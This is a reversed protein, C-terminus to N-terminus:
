KIQLPGAEGLLGHARFYAKKTELAGAGRIARYAQALHLQLDIEKRDREPSAPMLKAIEVGKTLHRSAEIYAPRDLGPKGAELWYGIAAQLQDAETLHHALVEPETAAVDPWREKLVHAIRAHLQQRRGRLMSAYAADQVLAHKFQYTADPPAGWRFLLAAEALQALASRLHVEPLAAAEAIMAYSFDRGIAAAIQAVDKVSALRDLRALLSAHLTGPIAYAPM